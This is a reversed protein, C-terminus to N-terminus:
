MVGGTPPRVDLVANRAGFGDDAQEPAFPDDVWTTGDVVFMYNYRGPELPLTVTWAGNALQQLPTQAPNWGNFDGAVEVRRADPRLVVLRVLVPAAEAGRGTAVTPAPGRSGAALWAVVGGALLLAAAVAAAGAVNWQLPRPQWLAKAVRRWLPPTSEVQRLVGAVFGAPLTPRPAQAAALSVQELALVRRRFADDRGLRGICRVREDSTLEQDVFRQALLDDGMADPTTKM